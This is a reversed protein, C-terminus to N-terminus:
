SHRNLLQNFSTAFDNLSAKTVKLHLNTEDMDLAESLFGGLGKARRDIQLLLNVENDTTNKFILELEDLKNRYNGHVPVFEFEQVVKGYMYKNEVERLRFGLEQVTTIITTIIENPLVRIYDTDQPDIASKIDLGTQMWVKAQELTLPTEYPLKISFPIEMKQGPEIVLKDNLKYKSLQVNERYKKDDRERIVETYISLYISDIDQKVEGGDIYLTGSISEGVVVQDTNLITNVKTSGIGISALMKKFLSM